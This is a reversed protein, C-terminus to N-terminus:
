RRSITKYVAIERVAAGAADAGVHRWARERASLSPFAFLVRGRDEAVARIGHRSLVGIVSAWETGYDRLEFFASREVGRVFLRHPMREAAIAELVFFRRGRTEAKTVIGAQSGLTAITPTLALLARRSLDAMCKLM